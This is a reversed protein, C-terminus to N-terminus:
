LKAVTRSGAYAAALGALTVTADTPLPHGTLQCAVIVAGIGVVVWFESTKHGAKIAPVAAMVDPLDKAAETVAGALDKAKAREGIKVIDALLTQLANADAPAVTTKAETGPVATPAANM